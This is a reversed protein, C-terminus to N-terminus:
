LRFCNSPQRCFHLTIPSFARDDYRKRLLCAFKCSCLGVATAVSAESAIVVIACSVASPAFVTGNAEQSRSQSECEGEVDHLDSLTGKGTAVGCVRRANGEVM